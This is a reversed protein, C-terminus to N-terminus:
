GIWRICLYTEENAIDIDVGFVWVTTDAANASIRDATVTKRFIGNIVESCNADYVQEPTGYDGITGKGVVSIEYTGARIPAFVFYNRGETFLKVLTCGEDVYYAVYENSLVQYIGDVITTMASGDECLIKQPVGLAECSFTYEQAANKAITVKDDGIDLADGCDTFNYTGNLAASNAGTITLSNGSITLTYALKQDGPAILKCKKVGMAYSVVVETETKSATLQLSEQSYSMSRGMHQFTLQLIYEGRELTKEAIGDEDSIAMGVPMGNQLFKVGVDPLPNGLPDVLKVTYEAPGPLDTLPPVTDPNWKQQCGCLMACLVLMSCILVQIRSVKTM